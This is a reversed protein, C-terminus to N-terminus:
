TACSRPRERARRGKSCPSAPNKQGLTEVYEGTWETFGVGYHLDLDDADFSVADALEVIETDISDGV